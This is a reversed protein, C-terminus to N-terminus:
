IMKKGKQLCKTIILKRAQLNNYITNVFVSQITQIMIDDATINTEEPHLDKYLQCANNKDGFIDIFVSDKTKPNIKLGDYDNKENEVDIPNKEESLKLM